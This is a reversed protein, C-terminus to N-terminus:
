NESSESSKAIKGSREYGPQQKRYSYENSSCERKIEWEKKLQETVNQAAEEAKACNIGCKTTFETGLRKQIDSGDYISVGTCKNGWFAAIKLKPLNETLRGGIMRIDNNYFFIEELEPNYSFMGSPVVEILNNSVSFRRLSKMERLLSSEM